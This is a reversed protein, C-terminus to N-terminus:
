ISNLGPASLKRYLEEWHPVLVSSFFKERVKKQAEKGLNERLGPDNYLKVMSDALHEVSGTPVLLGSIGHDIVERHPAIDSAVSPLSKIMAELLALPLGEFLSPFVYADAMELCAGIDARRGLFHVRASINLTAALAKLSEELRGSGIIALQANSIAPLVKSFAHLLTAQDKQPDLRGTNLYIFDDAAIGLSERIRDPADPECSLSEPDVSNYIVSIRSPRIGLKRRYSDAVFESCAVFVPNTLAALTKDILRLLEVKAPPWNGARIVETEYDPAQLSAILPIKNGGLRVLRAAIHADYLWSHIIDPRENKIISTIARSAKLWPRKGTLGLDTLRHGSEIIRPAFFASQSLVCVHHSFEESSTGAVVEVLQKEAGGSL